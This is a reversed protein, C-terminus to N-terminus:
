GRAVRASSRRVLYTVLAVVGATAMIFLSLLGLPPGVEAPCSCTQGRPCACYPNYGAFPALLLGVGIVALLVAPLYALARRMGDAFPGLLEFENRVDRPYVSSPGNAEETAGV